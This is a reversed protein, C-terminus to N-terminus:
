QTIEPDIERLPEGDPTRRRDLLDELPETGWGPPSMMDIRRARWIMGPSRAVQEM